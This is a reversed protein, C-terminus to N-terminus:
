LPKEQMWGKFYNEIAKAVKNDVIEEVEERTLTEPSDGLAEEVIEDIPRRRAKPLGMKYFIEVVYDKDIKRPFCVKLVDYDLSNISLPLNAEANHMACSPTVGVGIIKKLDDM